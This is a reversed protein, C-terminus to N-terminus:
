ITVDTERVPKSYLSVDGMAGASLTAAQDALVRDYLALDSPHFLKRAGAVNIWGQGEDLGRVLMAYDRPLEPSRVEPTVYRIACGIRRDNSQNPGSAHFCRGHHFSAQGPALSGFVARDEDVDAISQGRSLLNNPDFTDEHTAIGGLHSGPLFRMCGSAISVDSLAVWVTVEEDTNGMGWYTIDQHWSVTRASGPEKIFLEVSWVLLNNGLIQEVMDLILPTRAIEALLPVVLHGNVRFFQNLNHGGAGDANDSELREISNRLGTVTAADFVPIGSLFGDRRYANVDISPSSAFASATSTTLHSVM